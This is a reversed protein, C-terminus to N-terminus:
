KRFNGNNQTKIIKIISDSLQEFDTDFIARQEYTKGTRLSADQLLQMVAKKITEM